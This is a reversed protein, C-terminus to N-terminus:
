LKNEVRVRVKNEASVGTVKNEEYVQSVRHEAFMKSYKRSVGTIKKTEPCTYAIKKKM